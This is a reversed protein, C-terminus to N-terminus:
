PHSYEATALSLIEGRQNKAILDLRLCDETISKVAGTIVLTDNLFVMGKFRTQFSSLKWDSSWPAMFQMARDALVGASLMGHAIIGPLGAARAADLETHIPNFDGSAEAYLKLDELQIPGFKSPEIM